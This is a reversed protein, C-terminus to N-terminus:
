KAGADAQVHISSDPQDPTLQLLPVTKNLSAVAVGM